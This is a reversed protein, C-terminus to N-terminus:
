KEQIRLQMRKFDGDYAIIHFYYGEENFSQVKALYVCSMKDTNDFHKSLIEYYFSDNCYVEGVKYDGYCNCPYKYHIPLHCNPCVGAVHEM